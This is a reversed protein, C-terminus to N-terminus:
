FYIRFDICSKETKEFDFSGYAGVNFLALHTLKLDSSLWKQSNYLISAFSYVGLSCGTGVAFPTYNPNIVSKCSIKVKKVNPYGGNLTNQINYYLKESLCTEIEIDQNTWIAPLFVISLFADAVEDCLYSEYEEKVSYWIVEKIHEKENEILANLFARNGNKTIFPKGIRIM